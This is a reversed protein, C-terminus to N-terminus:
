PISLQPGKSNLFERFNEASWSGTDWNQLFKMYCFIGTRCQKHKESHDIGGQERSNCPRLIPSCKATCRNIIFTKHVKYFFTKEM